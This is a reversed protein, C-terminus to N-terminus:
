GEEEVLVWGDDPEPELPPSPTVGAVRILGQGDFTYELVKDAEDEHEVLFSAVPGFIAELEIATCTPLVPTTM